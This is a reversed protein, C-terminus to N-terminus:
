QHPEGTRAALKGSKAQDPKAHNPVMDLYGSAMSVWVRCRDAETTVTARKDQQRLQCVLASAKYYDDQSFDAVLGFLEDRYRMAWRVKDDVLCLFPYFLQNELTVPPM